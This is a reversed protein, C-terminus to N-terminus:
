LLRPLIPDPCPPLTPGSTLNARHLNILSRQPGICPWTRASIAGLALSAGQQVLVSTEGTPASHISRTRLRNLAVDARTASACPTHQGDLASHPAEEAGVAEVGAAELGSPELATRGFGEFGGRGVIQPHDIEGATRSETSIIAFDDGGVEAENNVVVTSENDKGAVVRAGVGGSEEVAELLSHQPAAQRDFEVGVLAFGEDVVVCFDNAGVEADAEQVRLWVMGPAFALDLPENLGDNNHHTPVALAPSPFGALGRLRQDPTRRFEPLLPTPLNAVPSGSAPSGCTRNPPPLPAFCRGTGVEIRPRQTECGKRV